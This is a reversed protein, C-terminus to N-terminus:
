RIERWSLIRVGVQGVGNDFDASDGLVTVGVGTKSTTTLYLHQDVIFPSTGRGSSTAVIPSETKDIKGNNNSDYAAGGTYAFAYTNATADSSCSATTTDSTTTYFVIDGAVTPASTPREGNTPSNTSTSSVATLSQLTVVTPSAADKVEQLKFTGAGGNPTFASLNDSGTSYFLYRDTSGIFLLASSSYIPGANTAASVLQTKTISGTSTLDFRWYTGDADGQYARNVVTSAYDGAATVDAQLANKRSNSIDGVDLCGTGTSSTSCSTPSGLLLGTAANIMFFTHGARPASSGRSLSASTEVDPFYGSGVMAANVSRDLTLPGVAPDSWTFGMRKEPDTATSKLDGYIRLRGGPFGDSLAPTATISGYSQVFASITTDFHSYDPFSWKFTISENPQDFQALMDTVATLGDESPDVNMGAESVDFAQYFTGGYSEGIILMTKWSGGLKIDALKPSSDVFYDFQEVPEGDMLTKLKPLLNFPIFAWVEYGTRADIAHIMGDNAGVFIISRRNKHNGAYTGTSDQFGYDEDPPPDLSPPDMIAPTSGIVAGIPLNRVFSIVTAADAGGLYPSLTSANAATFATMTGGGSGDPILTYINRSDSLFPVRASGALTPRDDLDPWLKTGDKVFAWGTAKTTDAQPQFARFAHLKGDFGPLGFGATVLMNSRQPVSDGSTAGQTSTIDTNPLAAGASSKANVLNVTGVVPTVLSFESVNGADVDAAKAYGLQVAYNVASAVDTSTTAKFYRGGSNTAISQLQAEDTASPKVGVVVIPVRRKTTVGGVTVSVSAFTSATTAPNHAATYTADGGDKGGTVLVIVTNRCAILSDAQMTTVTQARADTLAYDIPRDVYTNTGMSAPILTGSGVAGQLATLINATASASGPAYVVTGAPATANAFDANAVSPAYLVFANAAGVGTIGACPSTDLTTQLTANGTVKVPKDCGSTSGTNRWAPTNQRLKVLGWRVFSSNEGVVQALGAKATEWRTPSWFNVYAPDTASFNVPVINTTLYKATTSQVTDFLLGQYIRRYSTASVGLATAVIPDAAQSYTKVDYINGNGDDLMRFSTDLVIIVNPPIKKLALLPDLQARAESAFGLLMGATMLVGAAGRATRSRSMSWVSSLLTTM